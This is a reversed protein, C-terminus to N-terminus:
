DPILDSRQLSAGYWQPIDDELASPRPIEAREQVQRGCKMTKQGNVMPYTRSKRGFILRVILYWEPCEGYVVQVRVDKAAFSTEVSAFVSRLRAVQLPLM